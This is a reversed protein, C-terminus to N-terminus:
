EGEPKDLKKECIPCVKFEIPNQYFYHVFKCELCIRYELMEDDLNRRTDRIWRKPEAFDQEYKELMGDFVFQRIENHIDPDGTPSAISIILSIQENVIEGGDRRIFPPTLLERLTQNM